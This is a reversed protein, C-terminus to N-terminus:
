LSTLKKQNIDQKKVKTSSLTKHKDLFNGCDTATNSVDM